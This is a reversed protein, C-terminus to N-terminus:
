KMGHQAQVQAIIDPTLPIDPRGWKVFGGPIPIMDSPAQSGGTATGATIGPPVIPPSLFDAENGVAGGPIPAAPKAKSQNYIIPPRSAAQVQQQRQQERLAAPTQFSWDPPKVGLTQFWPAIPLNPAFNEIGSLVTEDVSPRDILGLASPLRGAGPSRLPDSFGYYGLEGFPTFGQYYGGM